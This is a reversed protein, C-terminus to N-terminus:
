IQHNKSLIKVLEIVVHKHNLLQMIGLTHSHFTSIDEMAGIIHWTNLVLATFMENRVILNVYAQTAQWVETSVSNTIM